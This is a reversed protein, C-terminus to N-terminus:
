KLKKGDHGGGDDQIDRGRKPSTWSADPTVPSQLGWRGHHCQAIRKSTFLRANKKDIYLRIDEPIIQGLGRWGEM